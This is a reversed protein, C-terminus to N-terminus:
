PSVGYSNVTGARCLNRLGEQGSSIRGNSLSFYGIVCQDVTLVYTKSADTKENKLARNVLWQNLSTEGCDFGTLDHYLGLPGPAIVAGM